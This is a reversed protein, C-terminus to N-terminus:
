TQKVNQGQPYSYKIWLKINEYLTWFLLNEVFINATERTAWVTFHRDAICSVCTRDRPQSSGRSFSIAAWELIRAQFIGHIASGPSSSDMPDCLSGLHCLLLSNAQWHLLNLLLDGLTAFPLECRNELRSFEMSLPAQCTVTCPTAFLWVHSVSQAYVYASIIGM